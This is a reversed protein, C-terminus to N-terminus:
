FRFLGGASVLVQLSVGSGQTVPSWQVGTRHLLILSFRSHLKLGLYVQLGGSLVLGPVDESSFHQLTLGAMAYGGLWLTLWSTLRFPYGAFLQLALQTANRWNGETAVVNYSGGRLFHFGIGLRERWHLGLELSFSHSARVDSFSAFYGPLFSLGWSSKEDLLPEAKAKLTTGKQQLQSVRCTTSRWGSSLEIVREKPFVVRQVYCQKGRELYVKGMGSVVRIRYANEKRKHHVWVFSGVSVVLRGTVQRRIRLYSNYAPILGYPSVGKITYDFFSPEEGTEKHFRQGAYRFMEGVTIIGDRDADAARNGRIGKLLYYTFISARRRQDEFAHIQSSVMVQVGRTKGVMPQLVRLLNRKVRRRPGKFKLRSRRLLRLLRSGFCADFIAIRRACQIKQGFNNRFENYSFPKVGQKKPGLHFAKPGAHGSYYFLFTDMKQQAVRAFAKRVAQPGKNAVLIVRFGVKELARQLPLLDGKLTHQLFEEGKWGQQHGVLLAVRLDGAHASSLGLGGWVLLVFFAWWRVIM